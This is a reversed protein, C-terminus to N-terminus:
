HWGELVALLVIGMMFVTYARLAWLIVQLQPTLRRRPLQRVHNQRQRYEAYAQQRLYAWHPSQRPM